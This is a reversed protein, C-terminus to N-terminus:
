NPKSISPSLQLTPRSRDGEGRNMLALSIVPATRHLSGKRVQLSWGHLNAKRICVDITGVLYIEGETGHTTM